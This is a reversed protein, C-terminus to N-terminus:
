RDDQDGTKSHKLAYLLEDAADTAEKCLAPMHAPAFIGTAAYAQILAQMAQGAYHQRLTMGCGSVSADDPTPYAHGGAATFAAREAKIKADFEAASREAAAHQARMNKKLLAEMENLERTM